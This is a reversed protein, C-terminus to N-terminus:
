AAAFRETQDGFHTWGPRSTRSFLELYPGITTQEAREYQCDPKRSHERAADFLANRLSRRGPLWTPEGKVGILIFEVCGRRIYGPGFNAKWSEDGPEGESARSGKFWAEATAYRFGWHALCQIQQDLLPATSWLFLVCNEAALTDVPFARCEEMTMCRYRAQPAKKEGKPSRMATLWPFDALIARWGGLPRAQLLAPLTAINRAPAPAFLMGTEANM